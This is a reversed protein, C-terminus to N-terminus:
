GLEGSIHHTRVCVRYRLAQLNLEEVWEMDDKLTLKDMLDDLECGPLVQFRQICSLLLTPHRSDPIDILSPFDNPEFIGVYM